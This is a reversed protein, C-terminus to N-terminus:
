LQTQGKADEQPRAGSLLMRENRVLISDQLEYGVVPALDQLSHSTIARLALWEFDM